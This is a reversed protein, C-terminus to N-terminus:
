SRPESELEAVGGFIFLTISRVRMGFRQGVLSHGLEHLILCAFLGLAGAAAMVFYTRLTLDPHLSMPYAHLFSAALSWTVVLAIVIWSADIRIPIGAVRLITIRRTLM